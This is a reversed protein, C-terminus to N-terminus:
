GVNGLSRSDGSHGDGAVEISVGVDGLLGSALDLGRDVSEAVTGVLSGAHEHSLRGPDDSEDEGIDGVGKEGGDGVADLLGSVGAAIKDPDRGGVVLGVYVELEDLAHAVVMDIAYKEDGREVGDEARAIEAVDRENRKLAGDANRRGM